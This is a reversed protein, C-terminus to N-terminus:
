SSTGSVSKLADIDKEAAARKLTERELAEELQALRLMMTARQKAKVSLTSGGGPSVKSSRKSGGSRRSHQSSVASASDPLLQHKIFTRFVFLMIKLM